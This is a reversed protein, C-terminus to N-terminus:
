YIERDISGQFQVITASEHNRTCFRKSFVLIVIAVQTTVEIAGDSSWRGDFELLGIRLGSRWDALLHWHSFVIGGQSVDTVRVSDLTQSPTTGLSSVKVVVIFRPDADIKNSSLAKTM